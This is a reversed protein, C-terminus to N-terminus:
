ECMPEPGTHHYKVRFKGQQAGDAVTVRFEGVIVDARFDVFRIEAKTADECSNSSSSCEKAKVPIWGVSGL